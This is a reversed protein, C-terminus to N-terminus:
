QGCDHMGEGLGPDLGQAGGIPAQKVMDARIRDDEHVAAGIQEQAAVLGPKARRRLVHGREGRQPADLPRHLEGGAETEADVGVV